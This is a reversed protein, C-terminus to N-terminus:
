IAKAEERLLRVLERAQEEPAGPILKGATRVPPPMIESFTIAPALQTADLGLDAASKEQIKKRKAKLIDKVKPMRVENLGKECTFVAPLPVEVVEKGGDIERHVVVSKADEAIKFEAIISVCPINLLEALTIGVQGRDCDIGKKGTFLIDYEEQDAASKLVTATALADLNEFAPDNLLVADDAGLALGNRIVKKARDAGMCILRVSSGPFAAKLRLAEELGFEDFPNIVYKIDEESIKGDKIKIRTESDPTEKICVLIKM